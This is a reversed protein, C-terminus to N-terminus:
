IISSIQRNAIWFWIAVIDICMDLKTFIWQCEGLNDDLFSFAFPCVASPRVSPLVYLTFGYYRGRDHPQTYFFNCKKKNRWLFMQLAKFVEIPIGFMVHKQLSHSVEFTGM